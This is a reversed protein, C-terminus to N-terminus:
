NGYHSASIGTVKALPIKRKIRNPMVSSPSALNLINKNTVVLVRQQHKNVHNIKTVVASM